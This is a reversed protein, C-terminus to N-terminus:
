NRGRRHLERLEASVLRWVFLFAVEPRAWVRSSDIFQHSVRTLSHPALPMYSVLLGLRRRRFHQLDLAPAYLLALSYRM